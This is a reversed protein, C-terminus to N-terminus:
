RILEIRFTPDLQGWARDGTLVPLSLAVGLALCARDGLSLGLHRTLPRLRAVEAAHVAEFPVIALRVGFLQTLRTSEQVPDIGLEAVRSMAEAWNVASVAASDEIALEVRDAGPEDLMLALLASADLVSNASLKPTGILL